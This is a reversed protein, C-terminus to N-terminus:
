NSQQVLCRETCPALTSWSWEQSNTKSKELWQLSDNARAIIQDGDSLYVATRGAAKSPLSLSLDLKGDPSFRIIRFDLSPQGRTVLGRRRPVTFGVLVRNEHDIAISPRDASHHHPDPPEWGYEELKLVFVNASQAELCHPCITTAVVAWPCLWKLLGNM